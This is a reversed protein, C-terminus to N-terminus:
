PSAPTVTVSDFVSTGLYTRSIPCEVLGIYVAPAMTMTSVPTGVQTWTTGDASDYGTFTNGVRTLKFWVPPPRVVAASGPPATDVMPDDAVPRVNFVVNSLQKIVLLVTKSGPTLAERIMVGTKNRVMSVKVVHAVISCDGTVQQYAFHFTDTKGWIEHGSGKVTFTGNDFVTSGPLEPAGIDQVSWKPPLISQPAPQNPTVATTPPLPIPTPSIVPSVPAAVSATTATQGQGPTVTVSDFTGYTRGTTSIATEVLGIYVASGMNPITTSGQPTWSAGDQSVYGTFTNGVLTLKLWIPLTKQLTDIGIGTASEDKVARESMIVGHNSRFVLAAFPSGPSLDGRIMIGSKQRAANQSAIRTVITCDGNVQQYAFNFGDATGGIDAGSGALSFTGDNMKASGTAAVVGIDQDTWGPAFVTPGANQAPTPTVPPAPPPTPSAPAVVVPNVAPQAPVPVPAANTDPAPKVPPPATPTYESLEQAPTLTPKKQGFLSPLEWILLGIVVVLAVVLGIMMWLTFTASAETEIIAVDQKNKEHYHPDTIRRKADELQEIFAAYSDYRDEPYRAMCKSVAYATQDSIDPVFAKLSVVKGSLHKMAVENPDEGEYPPRGSIAHFLTAGLSYLDSHFDEVERELKEPAVYYPTGWIEGDFHDTTDISLSLGFDVVKPTNNPNFLINGPKIDRHILGGRQLACELGRAVAIGIEIGELETVRGLKLIKDDLSGGSIYEVVMYYVGEHQGFAYVQVINPHNLSATIEAERLFTAMFKQDSLLEPRLVKVAVVRNLTIDRGLYVAGMGGAGLQRELLFNGFQRTIVFENGCYPCTIGDGPELGTTDIENRCRACVTTVLKEGDASEM